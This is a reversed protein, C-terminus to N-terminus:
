RLCLAYANPSTCKSSPMLANPSISASDTGAKTESCSRNNPKRYRAHADSKVSLHRSRVKLNNESKLVNTMSAQYEKEAAVMRQQLVELSGGM